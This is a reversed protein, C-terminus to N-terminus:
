VFYLPEFPPASLISIPIYFKICVVIRSTLHQFVVVVTPYYWFIASVTHNATTLLLM